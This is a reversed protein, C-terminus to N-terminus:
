PAGCNRCNKTESARATGCYSCTVASADVVIVDGGLIIPEGNKSAIKATISEILRDGSVEIGGPWPDIAASAAELVASSGVPLGVALILLVASVFLEVMM